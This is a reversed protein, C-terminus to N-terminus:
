DPQLLFCDFLQACPWGIVMARRKRFSCFGPLPIFPSINRLVDAANDDALPHIRQLVDVGPDAAASADRQQRISRDREEAVLAYTLLPEGLGGYEEAITLGFVGLGKLGAVIEAPYTDTHDLETAVPLIETDVFKRVTALIDRQLETLNDTSILSAM